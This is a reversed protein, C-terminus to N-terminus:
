MTEKELIMKIVDAIDNGNKSELAKRVKEEFPHNERWEDRIEFEKHNHIQLETYAAENWRFWDIKEQQTFEFSWGFISNALGFLIILSPFVISLVIGVKEKETDTSTLGLLLCLGGTILAAILYKILSIWFYERFEKCNKYTVKTSLTVIERDMNNTKPNFEYREFYGFYKM